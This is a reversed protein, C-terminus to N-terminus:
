CTYRKVNGNTQDWQSNYPIRSVVMPEYLFAGAVSVPAKPTECNQFTPRIIGTTHAKTRYLVPRGSKGEERRKEWSELKERWAIWDAREVERGEKFKQQKYWEALMLTGEVLILTIGTATFFLRGPTESVDVAHEAWKYGGFRDLLIIALAVAAFFAFIVLFWAAHRTTPM